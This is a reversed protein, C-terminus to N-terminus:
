KNEIAELRKELKKIKSSLEPLKPLITLYKKWTMASVAPVGGYMGASEIDKSTASKAAMIVQDGLTVHDALGVQGALIVHHGLKCSGAMGAQSVLISHEGVECNHAIQVLNDIKTGEKIITDGQTARDICSNAGVEVNDEIVVRGVQPIKVHRGKEDSVYGFGDAGLAVGAHLIVNDGIVTNRYLVANAHITVNKGIRCGDGVFVGPYLISGDGVAVNKGICVFPFITVDKGFAVNEGVVAQSDVGPVPVPEPYFHGLLKAFALQPAPHIVQIKDTECEAKVIVASAKSNQLLDLYKREAVFTIEGEVAIELGAVGTIELSGDGKIEGGVLAVIKKLNM